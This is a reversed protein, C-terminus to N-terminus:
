INVPRRSEGVGAGLVIVKKFVSAMKSMDACLMTGSVYTVFFHERFSLITINLSNLFIHLECLDLVM